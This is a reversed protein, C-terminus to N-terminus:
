LSYYVVLLLYDNVFFVYLIYIYIHFMHSLMYDFQVYYICVLMMSVLLIVGISIEGKELWKQRKKVHKVCVCVIVCVCWIPDLLIKTSGQAPPVRFTGLTPQKFVPLSPQKPIKLNWM